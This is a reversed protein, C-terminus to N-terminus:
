EKTRLTKAGAPDAKELFKEFVRRASKLGEEAAKASTQRKAAKRKARTQTTM